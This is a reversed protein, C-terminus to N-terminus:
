QPRAYFSRVRTLETPVDTSQLRPNSKEALNEKAKEVADLGVTSGRYMLNQPYLLRLVM